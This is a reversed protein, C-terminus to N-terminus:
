QMPKATKCTLSTVRRTGVTVAVWFVSVGVAVTVMLGSVGVGSYIVLVNVTLGVMVRVNVGENVNVGNIGGVEVGEGVGTITSGVM